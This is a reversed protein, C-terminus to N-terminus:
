VPTEIKAIAEATAETLMEVLDDGDAELGLCDKLAPLTAPDGIEGLACAAGMAHLVEVGHCGNSVGRVIEILAPVAAVATPGVLGLKQRQADTVM